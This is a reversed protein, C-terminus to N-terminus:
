GVIEYSTSPRWVGGRGASVGLRDGWGKRWEIPDVFMRDIYSGQMALYAVVDDDLTGVWIDCTPRIVNRSIEQAREITLTQWTPLFTYASRGSRHWVGVVASEDCAEFPRVSRAIETM